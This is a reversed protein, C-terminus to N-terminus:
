EDDLCLSLNSSWLYLLFCRRLLGTVKAQYKFTLQFHNHPIEIVLHNNMMWVFLNTSIPGNTACSLWGFTSLNGKYHLFMKQVNNTHNYDTRVISYWCPLIHSFYLDNIKVKFCGLLKGVTNLHYYKILHLSFIAFRIIYFGM